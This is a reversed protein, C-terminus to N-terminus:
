EMMQGFANYRHGNKEIILMGNHIYKRIRKSSLTDLGTAKDAPTTITVQYLTNNYCLLDATTVYSGDDNKVVTIDASYISHKVDGVQVFSYSPYLDEATFTGVPDETILMLQVYTGDVATGWNSYGGITAIYDTMNGDINLEVTQQATPDMYTLHLSYINDDAGTMLGNMIIAGTNADEVVTLTGSIFNIYTGTELIYVYLYDPNLEEYPYTGAIQTHGKSCVLEIRYADNSGYIEWLGYQEIMNSFILGTSITVDILQAQPKAAIYFYGGTHFSMWDSNGEPRFYLTMDGAHAADVTYNAALDPYWQQVTGQVSVVKLEDGVNLTANVKYEGEAYPNAILRYADAPSWNNFNGVLYYNIAAVQKYSLHIIYTKGDEGVFEGDATYVELTDSFQMDIVVQGEVFHVREGTSQYAVYSYDSYLEEVTYTGQPQTIPIDPNNVLTVWYNEDEAYFQWWGYTALSNRLTGDLTVYITKIEKRVEVFIANNIEERGNYITYTGKLTLTDGDEIGMTQFQQAVGDATLLGYIYISVQEDGPEVLDFNGYKNPLSSDNPDMVINRVIGTLICTDKANQMDLFEAITKEGLNKAPVDKELIVCTCGAAFEPINNYKTLQGTVQVKDGVGPIEQASEPVVRYAELVQGGGAEDAMWFTMNSGNYATQISTVYGSVIFKTGSDYLVNNGSVSLAATAAAACSSMVTPEPEPDPIDTTGASASVVVNKIEWTPANSTTSTYVFAIQVGQKHAFASSIDSTSTIFNWNNGQPWVVNLLTWDADNTARAKVALTLASGFNMAHEIYLSVTDADSLDIVPSILWSESVNNNSQSYASAKMGYQSSQSWVYTVGQLTVDNITWNGQGQTFNTNLVDVAYMSGAFALAVIMSFLKKM